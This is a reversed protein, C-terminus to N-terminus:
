SGLSAPLTLVVMLMWGAPIWTEGGGFDEDKVRQLLLLVESTGPM